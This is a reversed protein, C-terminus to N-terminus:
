TVQLYHAEAVKIDHGIWRCVVHVPFHKMLDTECSARLAHFVARWPKVKAAEIAQRVVKRLYADTCRPLAVVRDEGPEAQEFAELLHPRLAEFIPVLREGKGPLHALKPVPVRIRNAEWDVMSWRLALGESPLRLGAFRGLAFLVRWRYDPLKNLVKEATEATVYPKQDGAISASKLGALPSTNIYGRRMAWQFLTKCCKVRKRMTADALGQTTMHQWWDEADGATIRDIPRDDGVFAALSDHGQAWNARTSAKADKRKERFEDIAERITPIRKSERPEVIGTRAIKDYTKDDLRALWKADDPDIREGRVYAGVIHEVRTKFRQAADDSCKSIRITRRKHRGLVFQIMRGGSRTTTMSAM